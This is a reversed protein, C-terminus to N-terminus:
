VAAGTVWGLNLPLLYTSPHAFAGLAQDMSPFPGCGIRGRGHVCALQRCLGSWCHAESPKAFQQLVVEKLDHLLLLLSFPHSQSDTDEEEFCSPGRVPQKPPMALELAQAARTVIQHCHPPLQELQAEEQVHDAGDQGPSLDEEESGLGLIDIKGVDSIDSTLHTLDHQEHRGVPSSIIQM